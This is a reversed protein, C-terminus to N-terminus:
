SMTIRTEGRSGGVREMWWFPTSNKFISKMQKLVTKPEPCFTCLNEM